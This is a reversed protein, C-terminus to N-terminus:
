TRQFKRTCQKEERQQKKFLRSDEFAEKTELKKATIRKSAEQKNKHADVLYSGTTKVHEYKELATLIKDKSSLTSEEMGTGESASTDGSDTVTDFGKEVVYGVVLGGMQTMMLARDKSAASNQEKKM